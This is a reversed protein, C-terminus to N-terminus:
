LTETYGIGYMDVVCAGVATLNFYVQNFGEGQTNIKSYQYNITTIPVVSNYKLPFTSTSSPYLLAIDSIDSSTFESAIEIEISTEPPAIGDCSVNGAATGTSHVFRQSTGDLSVWQYKRYSGNNFQLVPKINTDGSNTKVSCVFRWLQYDPYPVAPGVSPPFRSAYFVVNSTTPASVTGVVYIYYWQDATLSTGQDRGGPGTSALDITGGASVALTANLGNEDVMICKGPTLIVQTGSISSIQFGEIINDPPCIIENGPDTDYFNITDNVNLFRDLFVRNANGEVQAFRILTIASLYIVNGSSGNGVILSLNDIANINFISAGVNGNIQISTTNGSLSNINVISNNNNNNFQLSGNIICGIIDINTDYFIFTNVPALFTCKSIIHKMARNGTGSYLTVSNSVSDKNSGCNDIIFYSATGSGSYLTFDSVINTDSWIMNLIKLTTSVGSSPWQSTDNIIQADTWIYGNGNIVLNPLLSFTTFADETVNGIFNINWVQSLTLGSLISMCFAVTAFPNGSSGDGSVDSGNISVYYTFASTFGGGGSGAIIKGTGDCALSTVGGLVPITVSTHKTDLYSLPSILALHNLSM